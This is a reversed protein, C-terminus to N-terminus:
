ISNKSAILETKLVSTYVIRASDAIQLENNKQLIMENVFQINELESKAAASLNELKFDRGDLTVVTEKQSVDEVM